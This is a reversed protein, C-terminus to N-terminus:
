FLRPFVKNLCGFVRMGDMMFLKSKGLIGKKDEDDIYEDGEVLDAIQLFLTTFTEDPRRVLALVRKLEENTWRTADFASRGYM